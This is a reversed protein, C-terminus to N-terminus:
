FIQKNEKAGSLKALHMIAKLVRMGKERDLYEFWFGTDTMTVKNTYGNYKYHGKQEKIRVMKVPSDCVGNRRSMCDEELKEPDEVYIDKLLSKTITRNNDQLADIVLTDGKIEVSYNLTGMGTSTVWASTYFSGLSKGNQEFWQLTEEKTQSRATLATMFFLCAIIFAKKM